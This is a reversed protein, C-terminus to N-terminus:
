ADAFDRRRAKMADIFEDTSAHFTTQGAAIEADAEREKRQWEETWFWAQDPNLSRMRAFAERRVARAEAIIRERDADARESAALLADIVGDAERIVAAIQTVGAQWERVRRIMTPPPAEMDRPARRLTESLRSIEEEAEPLEQAYM